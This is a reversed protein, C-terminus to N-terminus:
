MYEKFEDLPADFDDSLIIKGSLGGPTRIWKSRDTNQETPNLTAEAKSEGKIFRMFRVVEMLAAESMGQAEQMLMEYAMGAGRNGDYIM